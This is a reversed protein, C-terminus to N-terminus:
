KSYVCEFLFCCDGMLIKLRSLEEPSMNVSVVTAVNYCHIFVSSSGEDIDEPMLYWINRHPHSKGESALVKMMEEFNAHWIQLVLVSMHMQAFFKVLIDVAEIISVDKLVNSPIEGKEVPVEEPTGCHVNGM